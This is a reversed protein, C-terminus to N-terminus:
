TSPSRERGADELRVRPLEVSPAPASSACITGAQPRLRGCGLRRRPCEAHGPATRELRPCGVREPVPNGDGVADFTGVRVPMDGVGRLAAACVSTGVMLPASACAVGSASGGAVLVCAKGFRWPGALPVFM